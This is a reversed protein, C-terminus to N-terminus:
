CETEYASEVEAGSLFVYIVYETQVWMSVHWLSSKEPVNRLSTQYFNM